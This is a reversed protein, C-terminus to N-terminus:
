RIRALKAGDLRALRTHYVDLQPNDFYVAHDVVVHWVHCPKLELM